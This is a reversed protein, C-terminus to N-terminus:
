ELDDFADNNSLACVVKYEDEMSVIDRDIVTESFSPGFRLKAQFISSSIIQMKCIKVARRSPEDNELDQM